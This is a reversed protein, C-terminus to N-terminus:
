KEENETQTSESGKTGTSDNVSEINETEADDKMIDNESTKLRLNEEETSKDETTDTNNEITTKPINEEEICSNDEATTTNNKITTKPLDEKETPKDQTNNNKITTKPLDEEGISKDEATTTNDIDSIDGTNKQDNQENSENKTDIIEKKERQEDCTTKTKCIREEDSIDETKCNNQEESTDKIESNTKGDSTKQLSDPASQSESSDDKKDINEISSGDTQQEQEHEIIRQDENEMDEDDDEKTFRVEKHQGISVKGTREEHRTLSDKRTPHHVTGESSDKGGKKVKRKENDTELTGKCYKESISQEANNDERELSDDSRLEGLFRVESKTKSDTPKDRPSDKSPSATSVNELQALDLSARKQHSISALESYSFVM